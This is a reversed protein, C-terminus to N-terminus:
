VNTLTISAYESPMSGLLAALVVAHIDNWTAVDTDDAVVTDGSKLTIIMRLMIVEKGM